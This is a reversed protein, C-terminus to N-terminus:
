DEPRADDQGLHVGDAGCALALDPRDNVIFLADYADCLRRFARGARVIEREDAQKDRLQVVDVGGQLAPRLLDEAERGGPNSECVLYLHARSLWDRRRRALSDSELSSHTM